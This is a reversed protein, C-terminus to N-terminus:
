QTVVYTIGFEICYIFDQKSLNLRPCTILMFMYKKLKYFYNYLLFPKVDSQERHGSTYSYANSTANM